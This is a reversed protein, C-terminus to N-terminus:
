GEHGMPISTRMHMHMHMHRGFERFRRDKATGMGWVPVPGRDASTRPGAPRVIPSIGEEDPRHGRM